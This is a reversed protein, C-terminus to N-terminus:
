VCEVGDALRGPPRNEFVKGRDLVRNPIDHVRQVNWLGGYRLMKTHKM